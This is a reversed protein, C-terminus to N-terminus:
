QDIGYKNVNKINGQNCAYMCISTLICFRVYYELNSAESHKEISQLVNETM